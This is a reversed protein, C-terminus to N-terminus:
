LTTMLEDVHGAFEALQEHSIDARIMIRIGAEGQPV